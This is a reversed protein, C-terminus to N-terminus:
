SDRAKRILRHLAAGTEEALTMISVPDVPKNAGHAFVLLPVKSGLVIPLVLVNGQVGGLAQSLARDIARQGMPGFVPKKDKIADAFMSRGTSPIRVLRVADVLLDPGRADHGRLEDRSHVFLIARTFGAALYDLVSATIADRDEAAQLIPLFRELAEASLPVPEATPGSFAPNWSRPRSAATRVLPPETRQAEDVTSPSIPPPRRVVPEPARPPSPTATPASAPPPVLAPHTAGGDFDAAEASGFLRSLNAELESAKAAARVVYCGSHEAVAKVAALATPDLMALTLNRQRDVTVPIIKYRWALEAPILAAMEPPVRGLLKGEARPIMLKSAVFAVLADEDALNLALIGEALHGKHAAAFERASAVQSESLLGARQM